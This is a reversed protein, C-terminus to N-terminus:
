VVEVDERANLIRFVSRGIRGFGNIGIRM